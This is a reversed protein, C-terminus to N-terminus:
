TPYWMIHLCDTACEMCTRQLDDGPPILYLRNVQGETWEVHVFLHLNIEVGECTPLHLTTRRHLRASSNRINEESNLIM